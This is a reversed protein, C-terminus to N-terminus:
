WSSADAGSYQNIRQKAVGIKTVKKHGHAGSCLLLVIEDTPIHSKTIFCTLCNRTSLSDLLLAVLYISTAWVLWEQNLCQVVFCQTGRYLGVHQGQGTCLIGKKYNIMNVLFFYSRLYNIFLSWLIGM